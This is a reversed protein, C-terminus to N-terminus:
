KIEVNLYSSYFIGISFNDKLCADRRMLGYLCVKPSHSLPNEPFKKWFFFTKSYQSTVISSLQFPDSPMFILHTSAGLCSIM